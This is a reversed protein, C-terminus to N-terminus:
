LAPRSIPPRITDSRGMGFVPMSPSPSFSVASWEGTASAQAPAPRAAPTIPVSWCGPSASSMWFAPIRAAAAGDLRIPEASLPLNPVQDPSTFFAVRDGPRVATELWAGAPYRADYLMQYVLDGSMVALWGAGLVGAGAAVMRTRGGQMWGLVLVRAAPLMMAAAVFLIYRYQMHRVPFVTLAEHAAMMIALVRVFLSGHWALVLGTAAAVVLAPGMAEILCDAIDGVLLLYGGPTAPRLLDLHVVNYFTTEFNTIFSIHAQFRGPNWVLGSAIAYVALGSGAVAALPKWDMGEPRRRTARWHLISLAALGALWSAYAQDKTAVSLAALTGLALGRGITLGDKVSRALVVLGLVKWFLVPVDLNGTRGYYVLPICLMVGAAAVVGTARDWVIRGTRYFCVVIGAVMALTVFRALLGLIAISRVPNSFGYPYVGSPNALGGSLCLFALYPAYICGLALYHFIPYAVYWGPQPQIFLNHLESLVALGSATDIEWGHPVQPHTVHPLGWWIGPIYLLVAIAALAMATRDVLFRRRQPVNGNQAAPEAQMEKPREVVATSNDM